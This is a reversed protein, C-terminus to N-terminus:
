EEAGQSPCPFTQPEVPLVCVEANPGAAALSKMVTWEIDDTQALNATALAADGLYSTHMVVRAQIQLSAQIQTM